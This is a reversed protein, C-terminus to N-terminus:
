CSFPSLGIPPPTDLAYFKIPENEETFEMIGEAGPPLPMFFVQGDYRTAEDFESTWEWLRNNWYQQDESDSDPGIIVYFTRM